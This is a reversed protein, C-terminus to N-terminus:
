EIFVQRVSEYFAWRWSVLHFISWLCAFGRFFSDEIFTNFIDVDHQRLVTGRSKGEGASRISNFDGYICMNIDARLLSISHLRDWLTQKASMDCPAYVNAVIFEQNTNIVRGRIILIHGFSSTSWVDVVNNDWVTVLGGSARMSPQFSYGYNSGGWLATVVAADVVPLKTEQVCLVYPQKEYVLRRVENRKEFGGLGRVNYTIMKMAVVRRELVGVFVSEGLM